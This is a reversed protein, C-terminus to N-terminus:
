AFPFATHTHSTMGTVDDAHLKIRKVESMCYILALVNKTDVVKRLDDSIWQFRVFM